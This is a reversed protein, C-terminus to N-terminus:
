IEPKSGYLNDMWEKKCIIDNEALIKGASRYPTISVGELGKKKFLEKGEQLLKQNFDIGTYSSGEPLLPLLLLGLAGYGCGCDLINVPEKILFVDRLLFKM